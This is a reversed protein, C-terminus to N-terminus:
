RPCISLSPSDAAATNSFINTASTPKKLRPSAPSCACRGCSAATAPQTFAARTPRNAPIASTSITTGTPPSIPRRTCAASRANSITSFRARGHEDLNTGTPAGIPKEPAKELTPSLTKEAWEKEGAAPHRGEFVDSIPSEAVTKSVNVKPKNEPM